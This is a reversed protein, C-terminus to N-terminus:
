EDGVHAHASRGGALHYRCTGALKVGEALEDRHFVFDAVIHHERVECAMGHVEGVGLASLNGAGIAVAIDIRLDDQMDQM